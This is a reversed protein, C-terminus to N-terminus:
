KEKGVISENNKLFWWCQVESHHYGYDADMTKHCKPSDRYHYCETNKCINEM